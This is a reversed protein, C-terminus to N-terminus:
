GPHHGSGQGYRGENGHRDRETVDNAVTATYEYVM